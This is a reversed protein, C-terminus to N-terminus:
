SSYKNICSINNLPGDALNKRFQKLNDIKKLRKGYVGDNYGNGNRNSIDAETGVITM